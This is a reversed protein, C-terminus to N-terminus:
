LRVGIFGVSHDIRQPSENGDGKNIIACFTDTHCRSTSCSKCWRFAFSYKITSNARCASSAGPHCGAPRHKRCSRGAFVRVAHELSERLLPQSEPDADDSDLHRVGGAFLYVNTIEERRAFFLYEHSGGVSDKETYGIYVSYLAAQGTTM